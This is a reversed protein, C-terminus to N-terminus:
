HLSPKCSPTMSILQYLHLKKVRLTRLAWLLTSRSEDVDESVAVYVPDDDNLAKAMSEGSKDILYISVCLSLNERKGFCSSLM